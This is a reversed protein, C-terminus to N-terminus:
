VSRACVSRAVRRRIANTKKGVRHVINSSNMRAQDQNILRKNNRSERQVTCHEYVFFFLGIEKASWTPAHLQSYLPLIQSPIKM